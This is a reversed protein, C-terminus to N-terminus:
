RKYLMDSQTKSLNTAPTPKAQTSPKAQSDLYKLTDSKGEFDVANILKRVEDVSKGSQILAKARNIGESAVATRPAEEIKNGRLFNLQERTSQYLDTLARYNDPDSQNEGSFKMQALKGALTGLTNTAKNIASARQSPKMESPDAHQEIERLTEFNIKKIEAVAKSAEVNRYRKESEINEAENKKSLLEIQYHAAQDPTMVASFRSGDPLTFTRSTPNDNPLSKIHVLGTAPDTIVQLKADKSLEPHQNAYVEADGRTQFGTTGKADPYESLVSARNDAAQSALIQKQAFEWDQQDSAQALNASEQELHHQEALSTAQQQRLYGLDAIQKQSKQQNEFQQQALAQQQQKQQTLAKTQAEAGGAFAGLGGGMGHANAEVGGSLGTLMGAFMQRFMDGTSKPASQVSQAGTTPNIVPTDNTAGGSLVGLMGKGFGSLNM